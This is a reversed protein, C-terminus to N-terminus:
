FVINPFTNKPSLIPHKSLLSHLLRFPEFISPADSDGMWYPYLPLTRIKNNGFLLFRREP